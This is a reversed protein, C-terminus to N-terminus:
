NCRRVELGSLCPCLDDSRFIERYKKRLKHANRKSVMNMSVYKQHIESLLEPGFDVAEKAIELIQSLIKSQDVVLSLDKSGLGINRVNFNIHDRTTAREVKVTASILDGVNPHLFECLVDYANRLGPIRRSLKDVANLISKAAIDLKMPDHLYALDEGSATRLDTEFLKRWNLKTAYLRGGIPKTLNIVDNMSTKSTPRSPFSRLDNAVLNLFSLREVIARLTMLPVSLQGSEFGQVASQCLEVLLVRSVAILAGLQKAPKCLNYIAIRIESHSFADGRTPKDSQVAEFMKLEISSALTQNTLRYKYPEKLANNQSNVFGALSDLLNARAENYNYENAMVEIFTKSIGVM